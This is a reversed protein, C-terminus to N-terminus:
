SRWSIEFYCASLPRMEAAFVGRRRAEGTTSGLPVFPVVAAGIERNTGLALYIDITEGGSGPPRYHFSLEREDAVVTISVEDSGVVTQERRTTEPM